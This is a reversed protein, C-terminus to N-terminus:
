TEKAEEQGTQAKVDEGDEDDEDSDTESDVGLKDMVSDVGNAFLKQLKAAQARKVKIVHAIGNDSVNELSAVESDPVEALIQFDLITVLAEGDEGLEFTAPGRSKGEAGQYFRVM